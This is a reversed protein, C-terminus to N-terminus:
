LHAGGMAWSQSPEPIKLLGSYLFLTTFAYTHKYIVFAWGDEEPRGNTIPQYKWLWRSQWTSEPMTWVSGFPRTSSMQTSLCLGNPWSYCSKSRSFSICACPGLNLGWCGGVSSASNNSKTLSSDFLAFYLLDFCRPKTYQTHKAMTKTSQLKNKKQTSLTVWSM